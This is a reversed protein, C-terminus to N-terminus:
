QQTKGRAMARRRYGGIGQIQTDTEMLMNQAATSAQLSLSILHELIPFAQLLPYFLSIFLSTSLFFSIYVSFLGKAQQRGETFLFKDGDGMSTKSDKRRRRRRSWRRRRSVRGDTTNNGADRPWSMGKVDQGHDWSCYPM